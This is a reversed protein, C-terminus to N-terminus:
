APNVWESGNWYKVTRQVWSIGNWTYLNKLRFQDDVFVRVGGITFDIDMGTVAYDGSQLAMILSRVLNIDVGALTYDGSAPQLRAARGFSIAWGEQNYNGSVASVRLARLFNVIQGALTYVGATAHIVFNRILSSPTGTITFFGSGSPLKRTSILGAAYGGLSINSQEALLSKSLNFGVDQGSQTYTGLSAGVMRTNILNTIQGSVNYVGTNVSIKLARSFGATQGSLTYSASAAQIKYGPKLDANQGTLTFSGTNALLLYNVTYTLNATQGTLAYSSFDGALKGSKRLSSSVGQYTYSESAAILPIGRKLITSQGGVSFSTGNAVLDYGSPAVYPRVAITLRGQVSTTALTATTGGTSGAAVKLGSAVALGGGNGQTTSVDVLETLELLNANVLNSIRPTAVDVMSGIANLILCKDITTTVSPFTVFTSSSATDGSMVDFPTTQDVNYLALIFAGAHDGPDAVSVSSESSTAYKYYATIRTATTGGATGTGQPSSSLETWGTPTSVAQNATEVFLLFLDDEQWGTPLTVTLAGTGSIFDGASRFKPANAGYSVNAAVGNVTFIGKDASVRNFQANQGSLTFTGRDATLKATAPNLAFVIHGQLSAALLTGSSTGTSGATAMTGSMIDMSCYNSGYVEQHRTLGTLNSNTPLSNTNGGGTKDASSYVLVVLSNDITTTISPLTITTTSTSATDGASITIPTTQDVGRFAIITAVQHAGSDAVNVSSVNNLTDIRYFVSVRTAANDAATGAGQPSNPLVTWGSPTAVNQNATEVFLILIDGAQHVPADVTIGFSGTAEFTTRGVYTPATPV